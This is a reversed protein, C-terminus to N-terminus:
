KRSSRQPCSFSRARQYPTAPAGLMSCRAQGSSHQKGLEARVRGVADLAEPNTLTYELATIGGDVLARGIALAESLDDLRVIAIPAGRRLYGTTDQRLLGKREM